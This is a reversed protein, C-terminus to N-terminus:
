SSHLAARLLSYRACSLARRNPRPNPGVAQLHMLSCEASLPLRVRFCHELEIAVIAPFTNSLSLLHDDIVAEGSPKLAKVTADHKLRWAKCASRM